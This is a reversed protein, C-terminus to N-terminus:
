ARHTLVDNWDHRQPRLRKVSPYRAILAAACNDGVPDADFGCYVTCRERILQALWLPNPTAGSTSVCTMGPYISACSLADIASECLILTKPQCLGGKRNVAFYGRSKRTGPAMGRWRVSGTGRLEAGVPLGRKDALLFVANARRDAYIAGSSILPALLAQPIGRRRSLYSKVCALHTPESPPLALERTRSRRSPEQPPHSHAAHLGALRTATTMFDLREVHMLLDIAGAGGVHQNWNMFLHGTTYIVGRASKYWSTNSLYAVFLRFCASSRM